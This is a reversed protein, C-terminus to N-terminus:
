FAFSTGLAFGFGEDNRGLDLGFITSKSFQLRAGTGTSWHLDAFSPREGANWLRGVDAFGILWVRVPSTPFPADLAKYRLDVSFVTRNPAVFRGISFLRLSTPGGFGDEPYWTTLREYAIHLPVTGTAVEATQRLGLVWEELSGFHAFARASLLYRTYDHGSVARAAMTELFIGRTPSAEEDRTDFMLGLRMEVNSKGLTDALGARALDGFLSSDALPHARYHRWQLGGLARVHRTVRREVTGLLTTRLLQYRYFETPLAENITATNGLGYFPVRNLREAGAVGLLRWNKWLGPADYTFLLGRTGSAALRGDFGFALSVPPPRRNGPRRWGVLAHGAFGEDADYSPYPIARFYPPAPPPPRDIDARTYCAALVAPLVAQALRRVTANLCTPV